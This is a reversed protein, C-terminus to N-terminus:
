QGRPCSWYHGQLLYKAATPRITNLLLHQKLLIDSCLTPYTTIVFSVEPVHEPSVFFTIYVQVPIGCFALMYSLFVNTSIHWVTFKTLFLKESMHMVIYKNM